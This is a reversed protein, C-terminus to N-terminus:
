FTPSDCGKHLMFYGGFRNMGTNFWTPLFKTEYVTNKMAIAFIAMHGM